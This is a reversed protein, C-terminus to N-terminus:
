RFWFGPAPSGWSARHAAEYSQWFAPARVWAHDDAHVRVPEVSEDALDAAPERRVPDGRECVVDVVPLRVVDLVRHLAHAQEAVVGRQAVQVSCGCEQAAQGLDVSRAATHDAKAHAPPQGPEVSGVVRLQSGCDREVPPVDHHGPAVMRSRELAAIANCTGYEAQEAGVVGIGAGGVFGLEIGFQLAQSHDVLEDAVRAGAWSRSLAACLSSSGASRM